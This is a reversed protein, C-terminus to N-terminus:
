REELAQAMEWGRREMSEVRRELRKWAELALKGRCSVRHSGGGADVVRPQGLEHVREVGPLNTPSQQVGQFLGLPQM